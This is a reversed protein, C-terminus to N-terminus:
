AGSRRGRQPLRLAYRCQQNEQSRRGAERDRQWPTRRQRDSIGCLRRARGWGGICTGGGYSLRWHLFRHSKNEARIKSSVTLALPSATESHVQSPLTLGQSPDFLRKGSFLLYAIIILLQSLIRYIFFPRQNQIFKHIPALGRRLRTFGGSPRRTFGGLQLRALMSAFDTFRESRQSSYL